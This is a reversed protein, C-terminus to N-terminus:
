GIEQIDVFQLSRPSIKQKFISKTLLNLNETFHLLIHMSRGERWVLEAEGVMVVRWWLSVATVFSSICTLLVWLVYHVQLSVGPAHVMPRSM